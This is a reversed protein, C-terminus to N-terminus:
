GADTTGGEGTEARYMEGDVGCGSHSGPWKRGGEKALSIALRCIDARLRRTNVWLM